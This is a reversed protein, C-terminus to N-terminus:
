HTLALTGHTAARILGLATDPLGAPSDAAISLLHKGRLPLARKRLYFPLLVRLLLRFWVDTLTPLDFTHNLAFPIIDRLPLDLDLPRLRTNPTPQPPQLRGRPLGSKTRTSSQGGPFHTLSHILANRADPLPCHISSANMCPLAREAHHTCSKIKVKSKRERPEQEAAAHKLPVRM